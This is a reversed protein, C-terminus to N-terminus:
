IHILSLADTAFDTFVDTGVCSVLTSTTGALSAAVAQNSGKGGLIIKFDDGLISEGPVPLKDAFAVLDISIGGVVIVGGESSRENAM